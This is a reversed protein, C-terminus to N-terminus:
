SCLPRCQQQTVVNATLGLKLQSLCWELDDEFTLKKEPQGRFKTTAEYYPNKSKESKDKKKKLKKRVKKKEDATLEAWKRGDSHVYDAYKSVGEEEKKVQTAEELKAVEEPVKEM